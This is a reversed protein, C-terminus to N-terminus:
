KKGMNQELEELEQVLSSFDKQGKASMEFLQVSIKALEDLAGQAANKDGISHRRQTEKTILRIREGISRAQNKIETYVAPDHDKIKSM